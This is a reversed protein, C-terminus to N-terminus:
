KRDVSSQLNKIIERRQYEAIDLRFSLQGSSKQSIFANIDRVSKNDTRAVTREPQRTPVYAPTYDFVIGSDGSTTNNTNDDELNM